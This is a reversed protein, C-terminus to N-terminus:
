ISSVKSKRFNLDSSIVTGLNLSTSELDRDNFSLKLNSTGTESYKDFMVYSFNLSSYNSFTINKFNKAHAYNINTIVGVDPKIIKSTHSALNTPLDQEQEREREKESSSSYIFLYIFLYLSM